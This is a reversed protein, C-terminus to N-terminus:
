TVSIGCSQFLLVPRKIHGLKECIIYIKPHALESGHIQSQATASRTLIDARRIWVMLALEGASSQSPRGVGSDALNPTSPNSEWTSLVTLPQALEEARM